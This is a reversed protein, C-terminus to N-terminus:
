FINSRKFELNYLGDICQNGNGFWRNANKSQNTIYTKFSGKHSNIDM